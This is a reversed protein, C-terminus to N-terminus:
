MAVLSVHGVLVVVAFRLAMSQSYDSYTMSTVEATDVRANGFDDVDGCMCVFGKRGDGADGEYVYVSSGPCPNPAASCASVRFPFGQNCTSGWRVWSM